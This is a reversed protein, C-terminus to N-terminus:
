AMQGGQRARNSGLQCGIRKQAAILGREDPPGTLRASPRVQGVGLDKGNQAGHFVLKASPFCQGPNARLCGALCPEDQLASHFRTWGM